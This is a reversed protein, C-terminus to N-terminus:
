RHKKLVFFDSKTATTVKMYEILAECDSAEANRLVVERGLKDKKIIPGFKM